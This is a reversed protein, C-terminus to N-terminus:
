IDDNFQTVSTVQSVVLDDVIVEIYCVNQDNGRLNTIDFNKTYCVRWKVFM